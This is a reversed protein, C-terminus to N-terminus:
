AVVLEYIEDVATTPSECPDPWTFSWLLLVDL